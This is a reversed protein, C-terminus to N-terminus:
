PSKNKIFTKNLPLFHGKRKSVTLMRTGVRFMRLKAVNMQEDMWQGEALHAEAAFVTKYHVSNESIRM